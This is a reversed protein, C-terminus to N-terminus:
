SESYINLPIGQYKLEMNNLVIMLIDLKKHTLNQFRIEPRSFHFKDYPIDASECKEPTMTPYKIKSDFTDKWIKVDVLKPDKFIKELEEFFFDLVKQRYVFPLDNEVYCYTELVEGKPVYGDDYFDDWINIPISKIKKM